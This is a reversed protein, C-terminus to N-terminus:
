AVTQGVLTDRLGSIKLDESHLGLGKVIVDTLELIVKPLMPHRPM